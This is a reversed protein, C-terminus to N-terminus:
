SMEQNCNKRSFNQDNKDGLTLQIAIEAGQPDVKVKM